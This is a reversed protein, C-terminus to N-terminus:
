QSPQPQMNEIGGVLVEMFNQLKGPVKTISRTALFSLLALAMILLWTYAIADCGAAGIHLPELLKRFFELFLLTFLWQKPNASAPTTTSRESARRLTRQTLALAAEPSGCLSAAFRFLPQYYLEVLRNFRPALNTEM